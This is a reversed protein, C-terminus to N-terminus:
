NEILNKKFKQKKVNLVFIKFIIESKYIIWKEVFKIKCEIGSIGYIESNNKLEM